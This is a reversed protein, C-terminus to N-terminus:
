LKECHILELWPLAADSAGTGESSSYTANKAYGSGCCGAALAIGHSTTELSVENDHAHERPTATSIPEGGFSV